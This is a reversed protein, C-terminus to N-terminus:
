PERRRRRWLAAAGLVVILGSGAVLGVSPSRHGHGPAAASASGAGSSSVREGCGTAPYGAIACVLGSSDYRLPRAVAALADAASADDPVRACAVRARPPRAGGAADAATGFDLVLAVRKTGKRAPTAACVAAFRVRGRPRVASASDASVGFRWGEASGDAPVTTAPGSQAFEWASGHREWFSWYRYGAARAPSAAVLLVGALVPVLLGAFARLVRLVRRARGEPRRRGPRAPPDTTM